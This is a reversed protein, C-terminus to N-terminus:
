EFSGPTPFDIIEFDETSNNFDQLVIRGDVEDEVKRRCSQGNFIGDCYVFGVDLTRPVRKYSGSYWYALAEFADLVWTNPIIMVQYGNDDYPEPIISAKDIDDPKFIVISAGYSHLIWDHTGYRNAFIETMNPVELFDVDNQAEPRELFTEYNAFSLDISNPNGNADDRHNMGDEAIIFSEGPQIPVSKGTGPVMWCFELVVSDQMDGFPTTSGDVSGNPGYVNAIYLSDAYIVQDTNNFLEVFHDSYYAKGNPTRTGTYFVEKILLSGPISATLTLGTNLDNNEIYIDDASANLNVKKGSSIETETITTDGLNQAEEASIKKNASIRYTGKAINTFVAEGLSNTVSEAELENSQNILRVTIGEVASTNYYAPYSIQVVTEFLEAKTNFIDEKCGSFILPLLLLAYLYNVTNKMKFVFVLNEGM